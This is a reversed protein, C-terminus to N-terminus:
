SSGSIPVHPEGIRRFVDQMEPTIAADLFMRIDGHLLNSAHDAERNILADLIARHNDLGTNLLAHQADRQEALYIAARVRDAQDFLHRTITSLYRNRARDILLLHFRESATVFTSRDDRALSREAEEISGRLEAFDADTLILAVERLSAPELLMRVQYFEAISEASLDAVRNKRGAHGTVFGEGVLRALAERVPSKSIGFREALVSEALTTGPLLELTIIAEKLQEYCRDTLTTVRMPLLASDLEGDEGRRNKLLLPSDM